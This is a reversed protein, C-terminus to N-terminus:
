YVRPKEEGKLVRLAGLALAELEEEGPIVVVDALYRVRKKIDEIIRRSHAIGGTLIIRDVEGELVAGMAGIEKAVQYCFAELVLRANGVEERALKEVERVDRTKLYAYIGGEGNIKKQLEERTYQGSYCIDILRSVPLSGCRDVSFPGDDKANCTDIMKGKRLAAVSIGTGLHGVIFNCEGLSRNLGEATKRAVAKINLAHSMSERELEPLGSLKACPWMEDVSVPDVIFSPVGLARAINYALVAGLNSAHQGRAALELEQVMKENVPYTGGPLPKLLGGRGVVASISSIDIREEALSEQVKCLRFTYQEFIKQYEQLDTKKHEINKKYVNENEDFVAIKTSTAGPNIVLIREKQEM